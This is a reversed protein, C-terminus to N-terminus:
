LPREWSGRHFAIQTSNCTTLVHNQFVSKLPSKKTKDFSCKKCYGEEGKLVSRLSFMCVVKLLRGPCRRITKHVNLKIGTDLVNSYVM